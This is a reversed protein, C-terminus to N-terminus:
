PSLSRWRRGEPLAAGAEPADLVVDNPGLSATVQADDTGLAGLAISVRSIRGGRDVYAFAGEGDRHVFALPLRIAGKHRDVEIWVDARQGIAVRAPVTTLLVDILLEHTQRDVERGIRDVTGLLSPKSDSGLRVRVRQGERLQPLASEDVWARSWLADTAVVRFVTTGVSVTDGTDRLRRVVIGDFPSVLAARTATVNRSEATKSAVGVQRRAEDRAARVRELEAKALELQQIALDLERASVTGSATLHRIRAEEATAFVLTATARHEEAELRAIAARALSVGSSATRVEAAFQEPALHGLVQGLKVRDGEDVLLDSIRGVLDFGLEVARRSEITGRGFVEVVVDGKTIAHTRVPVPAFLRHRVLLVGALIGLAWPIWRVWRM